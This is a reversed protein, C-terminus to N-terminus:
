EGLSSVFFVDPMLIRKERGDKAAVGIVDDEDDEEEEEMGDEEKEVIGDGRISIAVDVERGKEDGRGGEETKNPDGESERREKDVKEGEEEEEEEM